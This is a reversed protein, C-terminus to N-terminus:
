ISALFFDANKYNTACNDWILIADEISYFCDTCLMENYVVNTICNGQWLLYTDYGQKEIAALVEQERNHLSLDKIKRHYKSAIFAETLCFTVLFQSLSSNVLKWKPFDDKWGYDETWVPPDEGKTDTYCNWCGNNEAVIIIKGGYTKEKGSNIHLYDQTSIIGQKGPYKGVFSYLDKLPQPINWTAIENLDPKYEVQRDGYYVSLFRDPM